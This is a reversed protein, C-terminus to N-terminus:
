GGFKGAIGLRPVAFERLYRESLDIGIGSRGMSLAVAVTTGSGVFPDLVVAPAVPHEDLPLDSVYDIVTREFEKDKAYEGPSKPGRGAQRLGTEIGDAAHDHYSGYGAVMARRKTLRGHCECSPRWGMTERAIGAVTNGCHSGTGAEGNRKTVDNPRDRTVRESEEVRVWSAGCDACSGREPTGAAICTRPLASAFTAFHAGPFGEAAITWVSRKNAPPNRAARAQEKISKPRLGKALHGPREAIASMDCFYDRQKALLFIYEHAKTCRNRVSEPMPSPKAWIIDQRLMWGDAQLAFAV